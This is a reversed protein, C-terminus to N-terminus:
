LDGELFPIDELRLHALEGGRPFVPQKQLDIIMGTLKGDELDELILRCLFCGVGQDNPVRLKLRERIVSLREDRGAVAPTGEAM